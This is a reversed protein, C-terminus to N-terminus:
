RYFALQLAYQAALEENLSQRRESESLTESDMSNVSMHRERSEKASTSGDISITDSPKKFPSSSM